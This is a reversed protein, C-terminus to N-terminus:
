KWFNPQPGKVFEFATVAGRDETMVATFKIDCKNERNWGLKDGIAVPDLGLQAYFDNLSCDGNNNITYNMENVVAKISEVTSIFPRRVTMDMFWSKGEPVIMNGVPPVTAIAANARSQDLEGSKKIGLMEAAKDRYDDFDGSLVAYGAALAALRRAQVRNAAVICVITLVGSVVVPVYAKWVLSAEEKTTAPLLQPENISRGVNEEFIIERHKFAGRVALYGTAVVGVVAIGSLITPSSEQILKAAHKANPKINLKM